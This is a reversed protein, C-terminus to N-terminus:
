KRKPCASAYHGFEKCNYCQIQQKDKPTATPNHDAKKYNSANGNRKADKHRPHKSPDKKWCNSEVHGRTKCYECFTAPKKPTGHGNVQEAKRKVPLEFLNEVRKLEDVLELLTHNRPNYNGLAKKMDKSLTRALKDRFEESTVPIQVAALRTSQTRLFRVYSEITQDHRQQAKEWIDMAEDVERTNLLTNLLTGLVLNTKQYALTRTNLNDVFESTRMLEEYTNKTDGSFHSVIEIHRREFFAEGDYFGDVMRPRITPQLLQSDAEFLNEVAERTVPGPDCLGLRNITTPNGIITPHYPAPEEDNGPPNNGAARVIFKWYTHYTPTLKKLVKAANQECTAIYQRLDDKRANYRLGEPKKDM